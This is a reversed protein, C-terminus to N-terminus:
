VTWLVKPHYLQSGIQKFCKADPLAQGESPEHDEIMANVREKEAEDSIDVKLSTRLIKM